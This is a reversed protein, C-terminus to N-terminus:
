VERWTNVFKEGDFLQAHEVHPVPRFYKDVEIREPEPEPSTHALAWMWAGTFMGVVMGFVFGM